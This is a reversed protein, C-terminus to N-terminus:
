ELAGSAAAEAVDDPSMGLLETLVEYTHEGLMPAAFRPGNDYGRIRYQHGAYPIVGVESHELRKYFGRHVYQPDDRLDRSRQVKGAAIGAARLQQEVEEATRGSTWAEIAADIADHAALRGAVTEYARNSTWSPTGLAAVFRSWAADDEITIGCWEDDGACRYAGQPALHLDRNGIRTPLRGAIQHDLLEPALFQLGIELQAGEIHCGEGTRDRRDLAALITTALFRPGIADTYAMWPGDPRLDPWGVLDTFGAIAGAHFGYGALPSLPGGGGLLSTTVTIATPNTAHVDDPGLGLREMTGPRFSDIVVDAWDAMRRAIDLGAPNTLDLALSQKSTNFSGFFNSRNLGFEGDKFPAQARLTDLRKETEIRVVTAGHDALCRATIPGVGIWSFDAVNVGSLPLDGSIDRGTPSRRTRTPEVRLEPGAEDLAPVVSARTPRRGDITIPAGPRRVTVPPDGPAPEPTWFSRRELHDFALLDAVNNIPAFAAGYDLGKVLLEHRTHRSCLEDIAAALDAYSPDLAEGSLARHDYTAWDQDAWHPEAIGEELLWPMIPGCTIGIPVQCTYGDKALHGLELSVALQVTLGAREFDFGQIEDAEMANLMTWTMAEQASVDAWQPEGTAEMRRLAVLAAVAAEAGTHRWVQPISVKVPARERVGQLSMPGGLAALTLESAPQDARPGDVGFPTILVHVLRDNASILDSEDIGSAALQGPPGSEFVIDAGAVLDLLATRDGPESPDLVISRKGNNYAAFQLSRLDDTGAALLPHERRAPSGGPPEVRVVEAGLWGLLWPGLEGRHDTLDLIRLDDLLM